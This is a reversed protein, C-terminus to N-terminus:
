APEPPMRLLLGGPQAVVTLQRTPRMVDGDLEWLQDRDLTVQLRTFQIRYVRGHDPRRLLIAATVALWGALGGATLVVADLM